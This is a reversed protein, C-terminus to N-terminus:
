AWNKEVDSPVIDELFIRFAEGSCAIWSAVAAARSIKASLIGLGTGCLSSTNSNMVSSPVKTALTEMGTPPATSSADQAPAQDNHNDSVSLANCPHFM